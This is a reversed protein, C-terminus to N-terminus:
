VPLVNVHLRALLIQACRVKAVSVMSVSNKTVNTSTKVIDSLIVLLAQQVIVTIVAPCTQVFHQNAVCVLRDMFQIVNTLTLVVLLLTTRVIPSVRSVFAILKTVM